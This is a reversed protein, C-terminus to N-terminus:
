AVMTPDNTPAPTGYDKNPDIDTRPDFILAVTDTIPPHLNLIDANVTNSRQLM